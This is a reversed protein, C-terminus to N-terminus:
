DIPALRRRVQRRVHEEDQVSLEGEQGSGEQNSEKEFRGTVEKEFGGEDVEEESKKAM